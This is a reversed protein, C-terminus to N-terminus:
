CLTVHQTFLSDTKEKHKSVSHKARIDSYGTVPRQSELILWEIWDWLLHIGEDDTLSSSPKKKVKKKRPSPEVIREGSGGKKNKNKTKKQKKFHLDARTCWNWRKPWSWDVTARHASVVTASHEMVLQTHTWKLMSISHLKHEARIYGKTTSQAWLM